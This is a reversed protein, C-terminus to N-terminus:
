NLQDLLGVRPRMYAAAYMVHPEMMLSFVPTYRYFAEAIILSRGTGMRLQFDTPLRPTDAPPTGIRSKAELGGGGYRQWRVTDRDNIDTAVGTLVAVGNTVFDLPQSVHVVPDFFRAMDAAQLEDERTVLGVLTEATNQLKMQAFLYRGLDIGVATMAALLMLAFAAEIAAVGRRDCHFGQILQARPM